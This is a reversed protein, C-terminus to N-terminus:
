LQNALEDILQAHKKADIEQNVIESVGLLILGSMKERLAEKLQQNEQEIRAKALEIQREGELKADEKASQIIAKARAEAEAIIEASKKRADKTLDESELQAKELSIKAEEARALGKAIKEMRAELANIIPPWVFKMCFWVFLAFTILQGILTLNINM